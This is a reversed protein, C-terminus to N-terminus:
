PQRREPVLLPAIQERYIQDWTYRRRVQTRLALVPDNVLAGLIGAAVDGPQADPSFTHAMEGALALLPAIDTCFIPMGELGAELIPIGFGEERSPFLLADALRYFDYIVEDPLFADSLEALFRADRELGLEHRLALLRSFYEVNARNHPGLPGTVVLAAHPMHPKLAALIHLALEINKRPTLRVPLLFLPSADMLGLREVIEVTQAELKFFRIPDVGNPVVRITEASVGYLEALEQRRQESVVVQGAWNWHRRLLDWPYGAHLEAQYRSTTWALDHHWLVLAPSTRAATIRQLAATLALNFHLSCVNHAILVDIDVLAAELADQIEQSLGAFERPVEGRSLESKVQQVAPHRSDLTPICRFDIREDFVAGRGAIISVELGDAAMRRAHEAMVNEVGGVVPPASYHLLAINM